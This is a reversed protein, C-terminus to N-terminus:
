FSPPFPFLASGQVLLLAFLMSEEWSPSLLAVICFAALLCLVSHFCSTAPCVDRQSLLIRRNRDKWLMWSLLLGLNRRKENKDCTRRIAQM